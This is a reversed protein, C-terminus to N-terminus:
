RGGLIMEGPDPHARFRQRVADAADAIGQQQCGQPFARVVHRANEISEM